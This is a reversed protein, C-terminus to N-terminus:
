LRHVTPIRAIRPDRIVDSDFVVGQSGDGPEGSVLHHAHGDMNFFQITGGLKIRVTEPTLVDALVDVRAEMFAPGQDSPPDENRGGCGFVPLAAIMTSLVKM